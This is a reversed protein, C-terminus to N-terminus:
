GNWDPKGFYINAPSEFGSASILKSGLPVYVRLWDVNRVGSFPENKGATHERKIVVTDIVSGDDQVEANHKITERIKRDSKGGGINTNVVMLYDRFAEKIKGDWGYEGVKKELGPDGFYLLVHKESLCAETEKVLGIFVEKNLRSPMEKIIKDFLDGIIKKPKNTVDSKQEAFTQTVEWFNEANIVTGYEATMDVPGIVSLFREIVTPTLSIVGDVTPGNSKEYFWMLKQASMRWDPWWNADWFHWLPNVLWLPEPAVVRDLLGAETDYSGGGPVEINMIKGDRFDLLAFSGIFGGSARLEANNQFVLLYRKDINLGLFEKAQEVIEVFEVLNTELFALKDKMELYRAQHEAPIISPDITDIIAKLQKCLASASQGHEYFSNIIATINKDGEVTLPEFAQSLEAGMEASLRGAEFVADAKSALKVTDNPVLTGLIDLLGSVEKIEEQAALFNNSAKSFNNEASGIDMSAASKGADMMEDIASASAGLIKGKMVNIDNFFSYGKLPLSLVMLLLAFVLAPKFRFSFNPFYKVLSFRQIFPIYEDEEEDDYGHDGGKRVEDEEEDDDAQYALTEVVLSDNAIEEVDDKLNLVEATMQEQEAEELIEEDYQQKRLFMPKKIAPLFIVIKKALGLIAVVSLAVFRVFFVATWGTKYCIKFFLKFIKIVGFISFIFIPIFALRRLKLYLESEGVHGVAKEPAVPKEVLQKASAFNDIQRKKQLKKLGSFYRYKQKNAEEAQLEKAREQALLDVMFRSPKDSREVFIIHKQKESLM